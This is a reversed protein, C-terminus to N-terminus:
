RERGLVRYRVSIGALSGHDFRVPFTKSTSSPATFSYDAIEERM